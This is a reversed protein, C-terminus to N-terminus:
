GAHGRSVREIEARVLGEVLTPLNDDLWAKLMPRLMERVLDELTKANRVPVSHALTGFAANVASTAAPSLLPPDSSAMAPRAPPQRSAERFVVGRDPEIRHLTPSRPPPATAMDETLDLIDSQEPEDEEDLKDEEAEVAALMAEAEEQAMAPEKAAPFAAAVPRASPFAKAAEAKAVPESARAQPRAVDDDAIIRRISALIEEMSPEQAKAPQAMCRVGTM